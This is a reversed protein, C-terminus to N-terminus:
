YYINIDDIYLRGGQVAGNQYLDEPLTVVLSSNSTADKIVCSYEVWKQEPITFSLSQKSTITNFNDTKVSISNKPILGVVFTAPVPQIYIAAKFRVLLDFKGAPLDLTPTIISGYEQGTASAAGLQIYGPRMYNRVGAWNEMEIQKYFVPNSGKITSTVGSGNAGNTGVACVATEDSLSMSATPQITSIGPNNSICDGGWLFKSFSQDIITRNVAAITNLSGFDNGDIKVKFTVLGQTTPIGQVPIQLFGDGSELTGSTMPVQLGVAGKGSLSVQINVKENGTAKTYPIKIFASSNASLILQDQLDLYNGNAYHLWEFIGNAQDVTVKVDSQSGGSLYIVGQRQDGSNSLCTVEVKQYTQGDGNGEQPSVKIWENEKPIKISWHGTARVTFEKTSEKYDFSLAETNRKLFQDESDKNCSYLAAISTTMLLSLLFRLHM